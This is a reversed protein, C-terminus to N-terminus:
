KVEEFLCSLVFLFFVCFFGWFGFLVFIFFYFFFESLVLCATLDKASLVQTSTFFIILLLSPLLM